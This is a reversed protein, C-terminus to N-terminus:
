ILMGKLSDFRFFFEKDFKDIRSFLIEKRHSFFITAGFVKSITNKEKRKNEETTQTDKYGFVCLLVYYSNM